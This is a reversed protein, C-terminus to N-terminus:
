KRGLRFVFRRLWRWVRLVPYSLMYGFRWNWSGRLILPAETQVCRRLTNEVTRRFFDQDTGDPLLGDIYRAAEIASTNWRYQDVTFSQDEVCYLCLSKREDVFQTGAIAIQVLFVWDECRGRYNTPFPLHNQRWVSRRYLAAHVPLTSRVFWDELLQRLPFREIAPTPYHSIRGTSRNFFEHDCCAVGADPHENLLRVQEAIIEPKLLDDGDLFKIFSGKAQGFGYNRAASVGANQQSFVRLRDDATALVNLVLLSDDSSGDDVVICEINPWTQKLVSEIAESIVRQQNFCTVVVSVLPPEPPQDQVSVM